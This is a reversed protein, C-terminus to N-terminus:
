SPRDGEGTGMKKSGKKGKVVKGGKAAPKSTKKAAPKAAKKTKKTAM